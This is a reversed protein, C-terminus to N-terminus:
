QSKSKKRDSTFDDHVQISMAVMKKFEPHHDYAAALLAILEIDRGEVKVSSGKTGRKLKILSKM